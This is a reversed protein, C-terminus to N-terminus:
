PLSRPADPYLIFCEFTDVSAACQFKRAGKHSVLYICKSGLNTASGDHRLEVRPTIKWIDEDELGIGFQSYPDIETPGQAPNDCPCGAVANSTKRGFSGVLWYDDILHGDIAAHGLANDGLIVEKVIWERLM